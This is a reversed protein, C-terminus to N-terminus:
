RAAHGRTAPHLPPVRRINEGRRTASGWHRRGPPQVKNVDGAMLKVHAHEFEKGSNNEMTVWGIIELGPSGGEVINYDANWSFGGSVYALEADLHGGRDSEIVWNVVPKLIVGTGLGPFLPTGPLNFQLKGGVEVVAGQPMMGPQPQYYRNALMPGPARVVKGSVTEFKGNGAPIQFEITQGEYRQLLADMSVPDARYNQELIRLLMRGAPDRLIVSDPELLATAGAFGVTNVGPKLDLPISERVVAFQQNYITLAPDAAYGDSLCLVLVAACHLRM